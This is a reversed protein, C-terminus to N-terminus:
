YGMDLEQAQAVLVNMARNSEEAMSRKYNMLELLSIRRHTGVKRFAFKGAKMQEVIFPRSVGLLDAAQQTTLQADVPFLVVPKGEALEELMKILMEVAPAPLEVPLDKGGRRLSVKLKRGGLGALMRSSERAMAVDAASPPRTNNSVM